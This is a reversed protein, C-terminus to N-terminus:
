ENNRRTMGGTVVLYISSPSSRTMMARRTMRTCLVLSWEPMLNIQYTVVAVAVSVVSTILGSYYAHAAPVHDMM